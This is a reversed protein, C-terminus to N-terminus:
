EKWFMRSTTSEENLSVLLKRLRLFPCSPFKLQAGVYTPFEFIKESVLNLDVLGNGDHILTLFKQTLAVLSGQKFNKPIHEPDSCTQPRIPAVMLSEDLLHELLLKVDKVDEM